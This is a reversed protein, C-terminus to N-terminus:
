NIAAIAEDAASAADPAYVDAGVSNKFSENVPAGGVMITFKSRVGKEEAYKVVNAMEGMTTTLLASCAIIQANQEIAAEVFKDASVDVGLDIVELGKGEMMMKVLNKGIDHLDGKCTGLVVKGTAKVGDDILLQKLLESGANMARAAVLVDPVYLENIKFKQGVINMGHLLGGDLIEKASMGDAIAQEVLEKVVKARGKQLAASIEMLDTM